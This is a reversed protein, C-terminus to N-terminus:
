QQLWIPELTYGNVTTTPTVIDGGLSAKFAYGDAITSQLGFSSFENQTLPTQILPSTFNDESIQVVASCGFVGAVLTLSVLLKFFRNIFM